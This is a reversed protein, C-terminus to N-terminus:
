QSNLVHIEGMDSIKGAEVEVSLNSTTTADHLMIERLNPLRVVLAYLGPEVNEIVLRGDEGTEAFPATNVDLEAFPMTEGDGQDSIMEGVKALYILQHAYPQMLSQDYLICVITGKDSEPDTVTSTPVPSPILSLPSVSQGPSTIESAGGSCGFFFMTVLALVFFQYIKRTM